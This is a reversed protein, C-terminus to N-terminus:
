RVLEVNGKKIFTTGDYNTANIYYVYSGTNMAQGRYEGNWGTYKDTTEFVKNGWRDFIEFNMSKICDGRVYLVDNQGDGNPSFAQPIFVNGCNVDVTITQSVACSSDNTITLTYTTNVLPEANPNACNSCSLGLQPQWSYTGGGSSVLQVSQGPAITTDCCATVVPLPNVFVTTSDTANCFGNSATVTYVTTVMPNANPNAISASSLGKTPLWSYTTGGSASLHATNGACITQNNSVTPVPVPHVTVDISDKRTCSDNTIAVYYYKSTTPSITISDATAGTNWAYSTGGGAVLTISQGNCVSSNGTIIPALNCTGCTWKGAFGYEDGIGYITYYIRSLITSQGIGGSFYVSAGKPDAAVANYGQVQVYINSENQTNASTGCLVSGTSDFKLLFSSVGNPSSFSFGGFTLANYFVGSMYINSWKDSALSYGIAFSSNNGLPGTYVSNPIIGSKAWITNGSASYKALFVNGYNISYGDTLTQAGFAVTDYYYGTVYANNAADTCVYEGLNPNSSISGSSGITAANTAWLVNGTADYKTLFMNRTQGNGLAFAGFNVTGSTNYNGTAFVNGANDTALGSAVVSCSSCTPSTAWLANGNADYKAVFVNGSSGGNTLTYAGFSVTDHFTGTVYPNGSTDVVVYNGQVSCQGSPLTATRIWVANGNPDYKVLFLNAAASSITYPGFSVSDFFMGTSYTNGAKDAAVSYAFCWSYPPRTVSTKAWQVAGKSNYKAIFFASFPKNFTSNLTYTGITTTGRYGGAQYVNGATDTTIGWPVSAMGTDKNAAANVWQWQQASAAHITFFLCILCLLKHNYITSLRQLAQM